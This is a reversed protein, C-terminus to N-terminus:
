FTYWTASFCTVIKKRKIAMNIHFIQGFRVLVESQNYLTVSFLKGFATKLLFRSSSSYAFNMTFASCDITSEFTLLFSQKTIFSFFHQKDRSFCCYLKWSTNLTQKNCRYWPFKSGGDIPLGAWIKHLWYQIKGSWNPAFGTTPKCVFWFLKFLSSSSIDESPHMSIWKWSLNSPM